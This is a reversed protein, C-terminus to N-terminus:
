LRINALHGVKIRCTFLVESGDIELKVKHYETCINDLAKLVVRPKEGEEQRIDVTSCGTTILLGALLGIIKNL